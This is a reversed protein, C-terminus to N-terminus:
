KKSSFFSGLYKIILLSANDFLISRTAGFHFTLTPSVISCVTKLSTLSSVHIGIFLINKFCITQVASNLLVSFLHFRLFSIVYKKTSYM